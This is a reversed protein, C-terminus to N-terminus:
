RCQVGQCWRVATLLQALGSQTQAYAQKGALNSLEYPDAVLDYLEKAGSAREVYKWQGSVVGHYLWPLPDASSKVDTAEIVVGRRNLVTRPDRLKSLLSFGDVSTPIALQAMALVTPAFDVQGTLDAITMGARIGPGRVMFPVHNAVEYPVVKGGRLRHEGLLLGNDSMFMVYTNALEGSTNLAEMIRVVSDDVSLESERRQSNEETLGTIEASTLLSPKLPKDSIDAENFSPDSNALGEFVDRYVPKVYPTPYGTIDDPDTPSGAHPAVISTYLFFPESSPANRAIFDAALAGMTDTRYGPISQYSGGHGKDIYWSSGAYDYMGKPVVWEDWGPPEYPPAYGNFYKGILGTRYTPDLWTALTSDDDFEPFGGTPAVNSLVGHNHPYQGTLLTARAPCCLPFPAYFHSFSVGADGILRRVQPMTSLDDYRGDDILALVINPTTQVLGATTAVPVGSTAPQAMILSLGLTGTLLLRAVIRM